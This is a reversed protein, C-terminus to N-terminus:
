GWHSDDTSVPASGWHSDGTTSVPASGWHSDGTITTPASGWHSDAAAPAAFALLGLALAGSVAAIRAPRAIESIRSM